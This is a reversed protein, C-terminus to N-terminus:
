RYNKTLNAKSRGYVFYVLVLIVALLSTLNSFTRIPTHHLKLYIQHPGASLNVVIRGLEPEIQYNIPQGNDLLVFNPFALQSITVNASVPLKINFSLWDTGHKQGSLQYATAPFVQDVYEVAPSQAAIRATKPLYDYIGSTIGNTWALGSFKQHDTLPGHTIPTFYRYNLIILIVILPIALTPKLIKPILGVALSAFFVTLNLFRWPFQIKQLPTFILWLLTSKNHTFFVSTLAFLFILGFLSLQHHFRRHRLSNVLLYLLLFLPVIWHLYGVMFSMNDNPGWVSAGNGWFPSIFLQYLSVFHASFHYYNRFMSDIQTYKAEFIAPLTFFASLSLGLIAALISYLATKLQPKQLFWYLCWLIFFPTFILVMPNHSLLLLASSLALLIAPTPHPKQVLQRGFYFILPFLAAAWAENMAGRVFVNLAHYPAYTYFLSAILGGWGGFLSSALLFMALASTFIQLVATLKVTTVFSFGFLRFIQGILYPLPPYFNFLPYGYGYGLDPTWRCPIQGDLFCKEMELQRIMQMDDHMNWYEGPQWLFLTAPLVFLLLLILPKTM